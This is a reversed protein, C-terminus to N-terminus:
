DKRQLLFSPSQQSFYGSTTAGRDVKTTAGPRAPTPLYCVLKEVLKSLSVMVNLRMEYHQEHSNM